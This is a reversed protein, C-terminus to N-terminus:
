DACASSVARALTSSISFVLAECFSPEESIYLTDFADPLYLELDTWVGPLTADPGALWEDLSILGLGPGSM